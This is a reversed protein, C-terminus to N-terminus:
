TAVAVRSRNTGQRDERNIKAVAIPLFWPKRWYYARSEFAMDDFVTAASKDRLVRLAVKHGFWTGMSIGAFCYGMAYHMGDHVGLHPYIDFTAACNGTWTRAVKVAGLQPALGVLAAHLRKGMTPVDVFQSGTLGGFLLRSRDPTLRMFFPNGRSEQFVRGGPLVTRLVSTDVPETAMIFAPFPIVRRRLYPTARGTYGNTAIVVEDAAIRGRPTVIIFGKTVRRVDTVATNAIVTVGADKARALLGLQYLGPHITSTDPVALGGYYSGFGIEKTLEHPEVLYDHLTLYQRRIELEKKMGQFHQPSMAATFRGSQELHCAIQEKLILGAAYDYAASVERYIAVARDVGFEALLASFKHRFTRGMSGTNRSSAGSGPDGADIVAVKRGARALTLSASLGTFGSGVVVVDAREPVPVQPLSPRPAEIWWYPDTSFDDAFPHGKAKASSMRSTLSM